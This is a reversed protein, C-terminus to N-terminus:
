SEDRIEVKAGEKVEVRDLSVVILDGAELGSDIETYEWNSLGTTVPVSVIRGDQVAFVRKGEILAYSPIRLVDDRSDLIVEVDASTGPLLTRAFAPDDFEVEIEFTRNQEEIDQVYPAVRVLNGPFSKGPHSDMTIDVPLGVKVKGVDVEDLPASVYISDPDLVDIVPPLPVGPPSPTIWEGVETDVEAVVGDFPARVETRKLDAQAVELAAGAEKVRAEAQLCDAATVEQKSRADDVQDPSAVGEEGLSEIRRWVRAAQDAALCAAREAAKAAELARDRLAVTATLDESALRLLVQGTHVQEGKRVPLFEVRGGIEPSLSARRRTKITGSKSNTVTENVRGREVPQVTVPVPPQRFLSEGAWALAAVLVALILARWLWRKM